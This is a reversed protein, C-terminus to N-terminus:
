KKVSNYSAIVTAHNREFPELTVQELPKFGLKRLENVEREFVVDSPATSDICNAKISEIILGGQKLFYKANMGIIQAQNPQAVDAFIVDVMDVLMRYKLPYRADEIIPVINQRKKAVTILDRGPRFSFEVAYVTGEDGVIDSVHSVTTGSAAGIYLVKAGPAITMNDVGKLITCGLKSRYPNWVRYEVKNGEADEKAIRKKEMFTLLQEEGKATKKGAGVGGRGRPAGRGGRPAGRGRSGGREGMPPRPGKDGGRGGFGGRESSRGRGGFSSRESNRGGRGGFGGRESNRGRNNFGGRGSM